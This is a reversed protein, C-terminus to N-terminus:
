EMREYEKAPLLVASRSAMLSRSIRTGHQNYSCRLTHTETVRKYVENPERDSACAPLATFSLILFAFIFKRM